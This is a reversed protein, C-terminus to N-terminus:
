LPGSSVFGHIDSDVNQTFAIGGFHEILERNLTDIADAQAVQAEKWKENRENLIGQAFLRIAEFNQIAMPDCSEKQVWRKKCVATMEVDGCSGRYRYKRRKAGTERFWTEGMDVFRGQCGAYCHGPGNKQYEFYISRIDTPTGCIDAALIAEVDRPFLIEGGRITASLTTLCGKFIGREMIRMESMSVLRELEAETMSLGGPLELALRAVMWGFTGSVYESLAATYVTHRAKETAEILQAKQLEFAQKQFAMAAQLTNPDPGETIFGQVMLRIQNYDKWPLVTAATNVPAYVIEDTTGHVSLRGAIALQNRNDVLMQVARNILDTIESKGRNLFGALELALRGRTRGLTGEAYTLIDSQYAAKRKMANRPDLLHKAVEAKLEDIALQKYRIADDVSGPGRMLYEVSLIGLKLAYVNQILLPTDDSEIPLFRKAGTVRVTANNQLGPYNLKRRLKSFDDEDPVLGLDVLPNDHQGAPDVYTYNTVIEFWGQTVDTQNRVTAGNLVEVEIANELEKPLLLITGDAVVDYTAMGGVPILHSLLMRTAEDTRAKIRADDGCQGGAVVTGLDAKASGFLIGANAM